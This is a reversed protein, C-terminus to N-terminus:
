DLMEAVFEKAIELEDKGEDYDMRFSEQDIVGKYGLERCEAKMEDFWTDFSM